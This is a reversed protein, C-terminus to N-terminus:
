RRRRLHLHLYFAAFAALAACEADFVASTSTTTTPVILLLLLFLLTSIANSSHHLVFALIAAFAAVAFGYHAAHTEPVALVGAIAVVLAAICGLSVPESDGCVEYAIAFASMCIMCLSILHRRQPHAHVLQSISSASASASASASSIAYVPYSYALLMGALLLDRM